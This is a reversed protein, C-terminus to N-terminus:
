RKSKGALLFIFYLVFFDYHALFYSSSLPGLFATKTQLPANFISGIIFTKHM